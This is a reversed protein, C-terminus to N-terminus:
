SGQEWSYAVDFQPLFFPLWPYWQPRQDIHFNNQPYEDALKRQAQLPQMGRIARAIEVRDVPSYLEFRAIVQLEVSESNPIEIMQMSQIDLSEPVIKKGTTLDDSIDSEIFQKLEELDVVFGTVVVNLMLEITDAAEGVERDFEEAIVETIALSEPLLEESPLQNTEILQKAKNLLQQSLQDQANNLDSIAVANRSVVSGGRTPEPNQVSVLLGLQGDVATIQGAAVNGQVGPLSAVIEVSRTSDTEAPLLGRTQTIFYLQESGPVRITTGAPISVSEDGRNTFEATGRAFDGPEFSLGSTPLRISGDVRVRDARVINVAQENQAITISLNLMQQQQSRTPHITIEASPLLAAITLLIMLVTLGFVAIRIPPRISSAPNSRVKSHLGQLDTRHPTQKKPLAKARSMEPWDEGHLSKLDEFVPIGLSAAHAQVDPDLSVLGVEAGRREVTRQILRLELYKTLVRNRGPWVLVLRKAKAWHLKDLVSALDDHPELHIIQTKM